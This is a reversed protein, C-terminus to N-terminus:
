REGNLLSGFNDLVRDAMASASVGEPWEFWRIDQERKFWTLQRKAFHRTSKKILEKAEALRRRHEDTAAKNKLVALIERYGIAQKATKSLKKGALHEVEDVLGEEFMQEVRQEIKQYLLTRDMTIGIVVPSYGIKKLSIKRNQLTSPAAGSIRYIELARVIRRLDTPKIRSATQPDVEMLLHYLYLVGKGKAEIELSRRVKTDAAPQPSLGELLSRVYLGSGGTVIPLKKRATIEEIKKLASERFEHVSYNRTPSLFDILHHPALRREKGSAKATGIDMGKYVQMSDASIIEGNLRLALELALKSKGSATPGVLFLVTPPHVKV